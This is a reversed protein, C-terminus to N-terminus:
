WQFLVICVVFMYLIYCCFGSVEIILVGLVVWKCIILNKGVFDEVKDLQGIFDDFFDQMYFFM